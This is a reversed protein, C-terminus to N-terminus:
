QVYKVINELYRKHKQLQKIDDIIYYAPIDKVNLWSRRASSIIVSYEKYEAHVNTPQSPRIKAKFKDNKELSARTYKNLFLMFSCLLALLTGSCGAPM